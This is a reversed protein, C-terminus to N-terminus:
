FRKLYRFFRLFVINLRKLNVLFIYFFISYITSGIFANKGFVVKCWEYGLIIYFTYTAHAYILM